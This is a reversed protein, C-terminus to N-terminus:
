SARSEIGEPTAVMTPQPNIVYHSAAYGAVLGVILVILTSLQRM